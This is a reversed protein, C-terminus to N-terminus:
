PGATPTPAPESSSNSSSSNAPDPSNSTSPNPNAASGTGTLANVGWISLALIVAGSLVIAISGRIRRSAEIVKALSDLAPSDLAAAVGSGKSSEGVIRARLRGRTELAALWAGVLLVVAGVAATIILVVLAARQGFSGDIVQSKAVLTGAPSFTIRSVVSWVAFCIAATILVVFSLTIYAFTRDLEGVEIESPKDQPNKVVEADRKSLKIGSGGDTPTGALNAKAVITGFDTPVKITTTATSSGTASEFEAAIARNDEKRFLEPGDIVAGEGDLKIVIEDDAAVVLTLLTGDESSQAETDGASATVKLAM